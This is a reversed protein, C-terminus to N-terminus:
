QNSKKKLDGLKRVAEGANERDKMKGKMKSNKATMQSKEKMDKSPWGGGKFIVNQTATFIKKCSAGCEDCKIKPKENMGHFADKQASCKSCVYDYTPM